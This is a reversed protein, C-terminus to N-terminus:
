YNELKWLLLLFVLIVYASTRRHSFFAKGDQTSIFHAPAETGINTRSTVDIYHM